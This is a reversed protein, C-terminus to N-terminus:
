QVYVLMYYWTAINIANRSYLYGMKVCNGDFSLTHM